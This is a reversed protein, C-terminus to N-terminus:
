VQARQRWWVGVSGAAAAVLLVMVPEPAPTVTLVLSTPTFTPTLQLGNGLNLHNYAAFDGFRSTFTLVTFQQGAAPQFGNILSVDLTGALSAVGAVDVADYQSGRATGGLEAQLRAASGYAVDGG